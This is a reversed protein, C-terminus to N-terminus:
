HLRTPDGCCKKYKRGSGCLCADNRGPTEPRRAPGQARIAESRRVVNFDHLMHPLDFAIDLRETLNPPEAPEDADEHDEDTGPPPLLRYIDDLHNAIHEHQDAWEMWEDERLELGFYFGLAWLSGYPLPSGDIEEKELAEPVEGTEIIQEMAEHLADSMAIPPAAAQPDEDPNVAIREVVHNWYGQVLYFAKAGEDVNEWVPPPDGWVAPMYESPLVLEPGSILASFFGDLMELSMGGRPVAHEWLLNDLEDIQADSLIPPAYTSM